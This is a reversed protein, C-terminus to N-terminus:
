TRQIITYSLLIQKQSVYQITHTVKCHVKHVAVSCLIAPQQRLDIESINKKKLNQMVLHSYLSTLVIPHQHFTTSTHNACSRVLENKQLLVWLQCWCSKSFRSLSCVSCTYESLCNMSIWSASYNEMAWKYILAPSFAWRNSRM